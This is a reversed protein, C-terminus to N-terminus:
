LTFVIYVRCHFTHSEGVEGEGGGERKRGGFLFLFFSFSFIYIGNGQVVSAFKQMSGNGQRHKEEVFVATCGGNVPLTSRQQASAIM